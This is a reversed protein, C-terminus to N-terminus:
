EYAREQEVWELAAKVIARIAKKHEPGIGFLVGTDTGFATYVYNLAVDVQGSM